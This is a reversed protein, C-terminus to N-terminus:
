HQSSATVSKEAVSGKIRIVKEGSSANSSVTVSKHFAKGARKTDYKVKIVGTQGPMIAEKSWEPVTCGCSGKCNSIVLPESGTNTYAFEYSGDGMYAITGFDHTEKEFSIEAQQAYTMGICAFFLILISITKKM